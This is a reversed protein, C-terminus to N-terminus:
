NRAGLGVTRVDSISRVLRSFQSHFCYLDTGSAVRYVRGRRLPEDKTMSLAAASNRTTSSQLREDCDPRSESIFNVNKNFVRWELTIKSCTILTRSLVYIHKSSWVLRNCTWIKLLSLIVDSTEELIVLCLRLKWVRHCTLGWDNDLDNRCSKSNM